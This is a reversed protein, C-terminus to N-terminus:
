GLVREEDVLADVAEGAEPAGDLPQSPHSSVVSCGFCSQVMNLDVERLRLRPVQAGACAPWLRFPRTFLNNNKKSAPIKKHM